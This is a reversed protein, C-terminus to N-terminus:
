WKRHVLVKIIFVAELKETGVLQSLEFDPNHRRTVDSM